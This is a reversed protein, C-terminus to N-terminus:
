IGQTKASNVIINKIFFQVVFYILNGM